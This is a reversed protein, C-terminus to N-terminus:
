PAGDVDEAAGAPRSALALARAYVVRRPHGTRAAVVAAADKVSMTALAEHLAEDLM